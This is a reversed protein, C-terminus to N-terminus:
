KDKRLIAPTEWIQEQDLFEKEVQEAERKIQLGNRRVKLNMPEMTRELPIAKLEEKKKVVAKKAKKVEEKKIIVEKVPKIKKIIIPEIKKVFFGKSECGTALLTIRVKNQYKKAQSIGFIIKAQRNVSDAIIKSINSVENLQLANGGNINYLIGRAGKISYPYLPSYIIRKIAEEKNPGQIETTNLYTLRGKGSLITKLDAFDINVLGPLYIMEILGELNEALRKNINSLATKLPTDKDIIQFIKENPIISYANLNPKIKELARQAMEMKKEGEFEFPMTFIGYTLNGLNKSIKAFVHSAGSSTGGGLCAVIIVLDQGELIKKIKERDQHAAEEGIQDNMGTGLGKTVGLGFQFKKVKGKLDKLSKTDTNTAIFDARKVNPAIETLISAAGGGIGIVRIKTQHVPVEINQSLVPQPVALVKKRIIKKLKKKM